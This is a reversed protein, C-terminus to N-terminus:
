FKFSKEAEFNERDSPLMLRKIQDLDWNQFKACVKFGDPRPPLVKSVTVTPLPLQSLLGEEGAWRFATRGGESIKRVLGLGKFVNIIDYLRRIKNKSDEKSSKRMPMRQEMKGLVKDCFLAILHKFSFLNPSNAIHRLFSISMLTLSKKKSSPWDSEFRFLRGSNQSSDLQRLKAIFPDVGKWIYVNKERKKVIDFGELINIIDYIRRREVGLYKSFENLHIESEPRSHHQALIRSCIFKLSSDKRMRVPTPSLNRETERFVDFLPQKARLRSLLVSEDVCLKM